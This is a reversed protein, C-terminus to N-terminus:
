SPASTGPGARAVPGRRIPRADGSGRPAGADRVVVPVVVMSSWTGDTRVASSSCRTRPMTSAARQDSPFIVAPVCDACTFFLRWSGCSQRSDRSARSILRRDRLITGQDGRRVTLEGEVGRAQYGAEPRVYVRVVASRGAIVPISRGTAVSGAALLPVKVAQFLSVDTITLARVLGPTQAVDAATIVDTADAAGRDTAADAVTSPDDGACGLLLSLACPALHRSPLM